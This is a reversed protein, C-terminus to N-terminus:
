IATGVVITSITLKLKRARELSADMGPFNVTEDIAFGADRVM